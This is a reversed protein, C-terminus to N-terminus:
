DQTSDYVHRLELWLCNLICLLPLESYLCCKQRYESNGNNHIKYFYETTVAIVTSFIENVKAGWAPISIVGTCHMLVERVVLGGPM